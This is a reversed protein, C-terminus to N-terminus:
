TLSRPLWGEARFVEEVQQVLGEWDFNELHDAAAAERLGEVYRRAMLQLVEGETAQELAAYPLRLQLYVEQTSAEYSMEEEHIVDEPATGIFVVAIGAVGTGYASLQLQANLLQELLVINHVDIKDGIFNDETISSVVFPAYM